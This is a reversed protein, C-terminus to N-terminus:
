ARWPGFKATYVRIIGGAFIPRQIEERRPFNEPKKLVVEYYTKGQSIVWNAIEELTQIPEEKLHKPFQHFTNKVLHQSLGRYQNFVKRLEPESLNDLSDKFKEIDGNAQEIRKWFTSPVSNFTWFDHSHPM